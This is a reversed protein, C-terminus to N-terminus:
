EEFEVLFYNVAQLLGSLGLSPIFYWRCLWSLAGGSYCDCERFYYFLGISGITWLIAGLQKFMFVPTRQLIYGIFILIAQAVLLIWPLYQKWERCTDEGLVEGQIFSGPQQQVIQEIDALEAEGTAEGLVDGADFGIPAPVVAGGIPTGATVVENSRGGPACDNVGLVQFYYQFGPILGGVTYTNTNGVNNNGYQYVGAQTGINIAYTTVPSVSTWSLTIQGDSTDSELFSLSPTGSPVEATCVTSNTSTVGAVSGSSGSDGSGNTSSTPTPTPTFNTTFPVFDFAFQMDFKVERGQYQNGATPKFKITFYYERLENSNVPSLFIFKNSTSDSIFQTVSKPGYVVPGNVVNERITIELEDSLVPNAFPTFRLNESRFAFTGNQTTENTATLKQSFSDGPLINRADFMPANSPSITCDIGETDNGDCVVNVDAGNDVQAQAVSTFGLFLTLTFLLTLTHIFKKM